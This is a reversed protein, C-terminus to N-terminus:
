SDYAISGRNNLTYMNDDLVHLRCLGSVLSTQKVKLTRDAMIFEETTKQRGGTLSFFLGIGMSIALFLVFIVYDVWHEMTFDTDEKRV